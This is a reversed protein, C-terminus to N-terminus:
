AADADVGHPLDTRRRGAKRGRVGAEVALAVLALAWFWRSDSLSGSRWGDAAVPPAERSWGTLEAATMRQIEEEPRAVTGHRAILAARVVAASLLASPPAEVDLVLHSGASAARVAPRSQPDRCLVHWGSGPRLPAPRDRDPSGQGFARSAPDSCAAALDPDNRMRVITELMWTASIEQVAQAGPDGGFGITLPQGPSPAPAGASAVARELARLAVRDTDASVLRLGERSGSGDVVSVATTRGSLLVDQAKSRGGGIGPSPQFLELGRIKRDQATAGVQVLRIGIAPPVADLDGRSLAGRQFESVLVIERRAPPAEALREVAQLLGSGLTAADIRAAFATGQEEAKAADAAQSLASGSARMSDSVDVVVVRAMRANWGALRSPVILLPQALAAVALAVIGMRLLLLAFDSPLRVRVASTRSPRVFRLSPFPVRVARHRLLLHVLVPGALLVLGALAAPNLWAIM